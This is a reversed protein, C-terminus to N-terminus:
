SLPSKVEKLCFTCTYLCNESIYMEVNNPDGLNGLKMSGGNEHNDLDLLFM